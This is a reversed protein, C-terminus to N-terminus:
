VEADAIVLMEIRRQFHGVVRPDTDVIGPTPKFQQIRSLIVQDDVVLAVIKSNV